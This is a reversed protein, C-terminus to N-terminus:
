NIASSLLNGKIMTANINIKNPAAPMILIMIISNPIAINKVAISFFIKEIIRTQIKM